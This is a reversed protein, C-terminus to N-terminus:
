YGDNQVMLPNANLEVLTIPLAFRYDNAPLTLATTTPVDAALRTVPLGKRKLDWFRHGEFALEKFRESLIEDIAQDSSALVVPVYGTIRNTRLANLDSEASNAGTFNDQEARAEARILYMEATRMLKSNRVNETPNGFTGGAYKNIILGPREANPRNATALAAVTAFYSGRRIDTADYSDYLKNSVTWVITGIAAASASTNRYLSGVRASSSTRVTRFAQEANNADTWIGAFNALTTLELGPTNIYNTAYTEAEAWQESYLAIRAHLGNAAAVNARNIDTLNNPILAKADTIDRNLKQFYEGTTIRAQPDPSSIEMYPMALKAPDYKAGYFRFLEFHAYARLFLAEGKLRKRLTNDGTRTSDAIDIRALVRNARDIVAYQPNIATYTDRISVDTPSYQWEHVTAANYFEGATKVEDSFVSNLLVGMLDSVAGYAGMVAAENNAVTKLALEDTAILDTEQFDLYDSCSVSTLAIVLLLSLIKKM